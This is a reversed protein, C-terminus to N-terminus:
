PSARTPRIPTPDSTKGAAAVSAMVREYGYQSLTAQLLKHVLLQQDATLDGMRVGAWQFLGRPLNSWAIKHATDGLEFAGQSRQTANFTALLASAAAVSTTPAGGAESTVARVSPTSRPAPAGSGSCGGLLAVLVVVSLAQSFRLHVRAM